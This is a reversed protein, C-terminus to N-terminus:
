SKRWINIVQCGPYDRAFITQADSSGSAPIDVLKQTNQAALYKVTYVHQTPIMDIAM